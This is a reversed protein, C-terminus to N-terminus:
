AVKTWRFASNRFLRLSISTAISIFLLILAVATYPETYKYTPGAIDNATGLLDLVTIAALLPTEKFMGILYNGMPLFIVPIVQPLIVKLWTAGPKLGLAKSAEWQSPNVSEVGARFVESMYAGTYFGLALIGTLLADFSLGIRPLIYYAIYLQVLMPTCRMVAVYVKCFWRVVSFKSRGAMALLLGVAVAVLYGGATAKLTIGLGAMLEPFISIFFDFDFVM